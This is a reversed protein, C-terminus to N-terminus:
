QGQNMKNKQPETITLVYTGLNEAHYTTNVFRPLIPKVVVRNRIPVPREFFTTRLMPM